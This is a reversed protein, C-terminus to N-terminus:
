SAHQARDLELRPSDFYSCGVLTVDASAERDFVGAAGRDDAELDRTTPGVITACFAAAAPRAAGTLIWLEYTSGLYGAGSVPLGPWSDLQAGAIQSTEVEWVYM